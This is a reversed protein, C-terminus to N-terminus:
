WSKWTGKRVIDLHSRYREFTNKRENYNRLFRTAKLIPNIRESLEPNGSADRNNIQRAFEKRYEEEGIIIKREEEKQIEGFNRIKYEIQEKARELEKRRQEFDNQANRKLQSLFEIKETEYDSILKIREREEELSRRIREKESEFKTRIGAETSESKLATKINKSLSKEEGRIEEKKRSYRRGMRSSYQQLWDEEKELNRRRQIINLEEGEFESLVERELQREMQELESKENATAEEIRSIEREFHQEAKRYSQSELLGNISRILNKIQASRCDVSETFLKRQEEDVPSIGETKRESTSIYKTNAELENYVWKINLTAKIKKELEEEPVKPIIVQITNIGLRKLKIKKEDNLKHTIVFEIFLTPNNENDFFTIDPRILLYRDEIEPNKGYQINGNRDEYFTLQSKVKSAQILSKKMLLNPTGQVGPPPYKYVSPVNLEKLRHLIDEALKERYKRSSYVCEINSKDVNFAHHRFYSQKERPKVAQMEKNCGMCFYGKLGSEANEIHIPDGNIKNAWDNQEKSITHEM